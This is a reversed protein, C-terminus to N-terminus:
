VDKKTLINELTTALEGTLRPSDEPSTVETQASLAVPDIEQPQVTLPQRLAVRAAAIESVVREVAPDEQETQRDRQQSATSRHASPTNQSADWAFRRDSAANGEGEAEGDSGPPTLSSTRPEEVPPVAGNDGDAESESTASGARRQSNLYNLVLMADMPTIYGDGNVDWYQGPAPFDTIPGPGGNRSIANLILLADLPTVQNDGSVDFPLSPHHFPNVNPLIEIVFTQVTPPYQGHVDQVAIEIEAEAQEAHTLYVGDRLKLIGAVIEFRSDNVSAHYSSGLPNDDILIQGIEAAVVYETVQRDSLEITQAQEPVDTVTLSFTVTLTEDAEVTNATIQLLVVPEREYDITEGAKIQLTRGVIEFRPDDVTFEYTQYQDEDIIMLEAIPGSTNESIFAERPLIDTIPDSEDVVLLTVDASSSQGDGFWAMLNFRVAPESEFNFQGHEAVIIQNNEVYFRDDDMAYSADNGLGSITGVVFGSRSHEPLPNLQLTFAVGQSESPQVSILVQQPESLGIGDHFTVFFYDTGIFNAGPTYIMGGGPTTSVSGVRPETVRILVPATASPNVLGAQLSGEDLELPQGIVAPWIPPTPYYPRVVPTEEVPSVAFRLRYDSGPLVRHASSAPLQLGGIGSATQLLLSQTSVSFVMQSLPEPLSELQGSVDWQGIVEASVADIATLLSDTTALSYVVGRSPDIAVLEGLDTVTQLPALQAGADLVRIALGLEPDDIQVFVLGSQDDFALVEQAHEITVPDIIRDALLHSWLSVALGQELPESIVTAATGGGHMRADPAVAFETATLQPPEGLLVQWVAASPQGDSAAEIALGRGSSDITLAAWGLVDGPQDGSALELAVTELSGEVPNYLWAQAPDISQDDSSPLPLFLWNGDPLRSPALVPAPFNLDVAQQGLWDVATADVVGSVWTTDGDVRLGAAAAWAPSATLDMAPAGIQPKVPFHVATHDHNTFLRVIQEDEGLSQLAFRGQDDTLAFPEDADLLGNENGDIYVLRGAVPQEDADLRWSQNVDGLVVGEILGGEGAAEESDLPYLSALVRRDCLTEILLRRKVLHRPSASGSSAFRSRRM